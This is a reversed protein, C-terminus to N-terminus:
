VGGQKTPPSHAIDPSAGLLHLAALVRELLNESNRRPAGEEIAVQIERADYEWRRLIEIKQEDSFREDSVVDWPNTFVETPDLLAEKLLEETEATTVFREEDDPQLTNATWSAV